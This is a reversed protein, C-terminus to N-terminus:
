SYRDLLSHAAVERREKGQRMEYVCLVFGCSCAWLVILHQVRWRKRKPQYRVVQSAAYLVPWAHWREERTEKSAKEKGGNREHECIDTLRLIHQL